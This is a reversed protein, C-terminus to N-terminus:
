ARLALAQTILKTATQLKEQFGAQTRGMGIFFPAVVCRKGCVAITTKRAFVDAYSVYEEITALPSRGLLILLDPECLDIEVKLLEKSRVDDFDRDKWSGATYVKKADTLYLFDLDIDWAHLQDRVIEWSAYFSRGGLKRAHVQDDYKKFGAKDHIVPMLHAYLAVSGADKMLSDQSIVMVRMGKDQTFYRNGWFPLDAGRQQPAYDQFRLLIELDRGYHEAPFMRQFVRVPSDAGYCSMPYIQYRAFLQALEELRM